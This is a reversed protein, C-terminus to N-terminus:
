GSVACIQSFNSASDVYPLVDLSSKCWRSPQSSVEAKPANFLIPLQSKSQMVFHLRFVKNNVPIVAALRQWQQSQGKFNSEASIAKGDITEAIVVLGVEAEPSNALFYCSASIDKIMRNEMNVSQGFVGSKEIVMSGSGIYSRDQVLYTSNRDGSNYRVWGAPMGTRAPGRISFNSNFLLNNFTTNELLERNSISFFYISSRQTIDASSLFQEQVLVKTLDVVYELNQGWSNTLRWGNSSTNKRMEMWQPLNNLIAQTAPAKYGVSPLTFSQEYASTYGYAVSCSSTSIQRKTYGYRIPIYSISLNSL